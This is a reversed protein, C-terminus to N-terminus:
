GKTFINLFFLIVSITLAIGFCWRAALDNRALVRAINAAEASESRLQKEIYRSNHSFVFLLLIVTSLFLGVATALLFKSFCGAIVKDSFSWLFGLAAVSITILQKDIENRSDIFAALMEQYYAVNKQSLEDANRKKEEAESM